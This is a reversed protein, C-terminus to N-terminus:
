LRRRQGRGRFGPERDLLRRLNEVKGVAFNPALGPALTSLLSGNKTEAAMGIVPM